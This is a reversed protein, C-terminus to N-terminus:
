LPAFTHSALMQQAAVVNYAELPQLVALSGVTKLPRFFRMVVRYEPRHWDHMLLLPRSGSLLVRLACSVRFRGDVLVLSPERTRSLYANAYSPWDGRHSADAPHGHAALAGLDVRTLALKGAGQEPPVAARLAELAGGDADVVTVSLTAPVLAALAATGSAGWIWVHPSQLLLETFLAIEPGSMEPKRKLGDAARLVASVAARLDDPTRPSPIVLAQPGGAGPHTIGEGAGADSSSSAWGARLGSGGGSGDDDAGGADAEGTLLEVTRIAVLLSLVVAVARWVRKARLAAPDAMQAM